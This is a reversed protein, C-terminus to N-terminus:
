PNSVAKTTVARVAKLNKVNETVNTLINQSVNLRSTATIDTEDLIKRWLGFPTRLYFSNFQTNHFPNM